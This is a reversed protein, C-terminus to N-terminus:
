PREILTAAARSPVSRETTESLEYRWITRGIMVVFGVIALFGLPLAGIGFSPLYDFCALYGVCLSLTIWEM